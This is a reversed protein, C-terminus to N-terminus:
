VLLPEDDLPIESVMRLRGFYTPIKDYKHGHQNCLMSPDKFCGRAGSYMTCGRGDVFQQSYGASSFLKQGPRCSM